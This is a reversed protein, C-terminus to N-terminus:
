FLGRIPLYGTRYILEQGQESLIWEVFIKINENMQNSEIYVAYFSDSFPYSNNQITNISPYIDDISLLKIQENKVMETAFFLFSYGISNSHNRYDAVITIIDMMGPINEMRPAIISVNGMVKELMTQSGSNKPRQFVRIIQNCGSLERWNIIKGSYIDRINEITLNNVPNRNNVFFVFAERGIPIFKLIKGNGIFRSLQEDSPGACFIIDVKEEFLNNYAVDTRSYLLYKRLEYRIERPYVAQVFSAYVPYLATAGDLRPFNNILNLNSETDLKKLLNNPNFPTYRHLSMNDESVTPINNIYYQYWIVFIVTLICLAPILLLRKTKISNIIIRLILFLVVSVYFICLIILLITKHISFHFLILTFFSLVSVGLGILVSTLIKYKTKKKM